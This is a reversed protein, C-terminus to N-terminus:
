AALKKEVNVLLGFNFNKIMSTITKQEHATITRISSLPVRKIVRREWWSRPFQEWQGNEYCPEDAAPHEYNCWLELAFREKKRVLILKYNLPSGGGDSAVPVFNRGNMTYFGHITAKRVVTLLNSPTIPKM